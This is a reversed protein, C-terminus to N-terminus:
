MLSVLPAKAQLESPTRAPTGNIEERIAWHRHYGFAHGGEDEKTEETNKFGKGVTELEEVLQILLSNTM